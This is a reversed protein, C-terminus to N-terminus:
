FDFTHNRSAGKNRKLFLKMAEEAAEVTNWKTVGDVTVTRGNVSLYFHPNMPWHTIKVEEFPRNEATPFVLDMTQHIEFIKEDFGRGDQSLDVPRCGGKANVYVSGETVFINIATKTLTGEIYTIAEVLGIQTRNEKEMKINLLQKMVDARTTRCHGEKNDPSDKIDIWCQAIDHSFWDLYALLQEKTEILCNWGSQEQGDADIWGVRHFTFM